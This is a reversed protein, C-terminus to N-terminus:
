RATHVGGYNKNPRKHSRRVTKKYAEITVLCRATQQTTQTADFFLLRNTRGLSNTELHTTTEYKQVDQQRQMSNKYIDMTAVHM